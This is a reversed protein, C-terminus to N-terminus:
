RSRTKSFRRPFSPPRVFRRQEASRKRVGAFRQLNRACSMREIGTQRTRSVNDRVVPACQCLYHNPLRHRFSGNQNEADALPVCPRASNPWKAPRRARTIRSASFQTHRGASHMTQRELLRKGRARARGGRVFAVGTLQQPHRRHRPPSGSRPATMPTSATRAAM